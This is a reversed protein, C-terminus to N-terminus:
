LKWGKLTNTKRIFEPKPWDCPQPPIILRPRMTKKFGDLGGGRSESALKEGLQTNFHTKYEEDFTVLGRDYARHHLTCLSVGNCTADTSDPHVVPLIHAADLLRLQVGCIACRHGYAALVRKSFNFDRVAKLTSTLKQRRPTSDFSSIENLNTHVSMRNILSNMPISLNPNHLNDLNQIYGGMLSPHFAVANENNGKECIALGKLRAGELADESIQFSPSSGLIGSHRAYDFGAFVGKTDDWGLIVTKGTVVPIFQQSAGKEGIGTIQIRYETKSRAAGGGHTINWIYVKLLISAENQYIHYEAPHTVTESIHFIGWGCDSIAQEVKQLLVRKQQRAM